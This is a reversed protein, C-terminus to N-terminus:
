LTWQRTVVSDLMASWKTREREMVSQVEKELRLVVIQREDTLKDAPQDTATVITQHFKHLCKDLPSEKDGPTDVIELRAKDVDAIRNHTPCM